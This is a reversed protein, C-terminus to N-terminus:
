TGTIGNSKGEKEVTLKSAVLQPLNTLTTNPPIQKHAGSLMIDWSPSYWEKLPPTDQGFPPPCHDRDPIWVQPILLLWTKRSQAGGRGSACHRPSRPPRGSGAPGPAAAAPAEATPHTGRALSTSVLWRPCSHRHASPSRLAHARTHQLHSHRSQALGQPMPVHTSSTVECAKPVPLGRCTTMWMRGCLLTGKKGMGAFLPLPTPQGALRSRGHRCEGAAWQNGPHTTPRSPALTHGSSYM